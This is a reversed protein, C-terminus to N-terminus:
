DCKIAKKQSRITVAFIEFYIGSKTINKHMTYLIINLM